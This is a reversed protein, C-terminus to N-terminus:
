PKYSAAVGCLAHKACNRVHFRQLNHYKGLVLAGGNVVTEVIVNDPDGLGVGPDRVAYAYGCAYGLYKALM